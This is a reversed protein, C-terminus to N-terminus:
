ASGDLQGSDADLERIRGFQRLGMGDAEMARIDRRRNVVLAHALQVAPQSGALTSEAAATMPDDAQIAADPDDHGLGQTGPAACRATGTDRGGIM